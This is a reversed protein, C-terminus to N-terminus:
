IARDIPHMKQMFSVNHVPSELTIHQLKLYPCFLFSSIVEIDDKFKHIYIYAYHSILKLLDFNPAGEMLTSIGLDVIISISVIDM